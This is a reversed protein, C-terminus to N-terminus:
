YHHQVTGRHPIVVGKPTGTSGSTYLVYAPHESAIARTPNESKGAAKESTITISPSFEVIQGPETEDTILLRATSNELMYKCRAEPYTSDIPLYVAGCKAIALMAVIADKRLQLRFGVIDGASIGRERLRKALANATNNLEQYTLTTTTSVLAPSNSFKAAVVEFHTAIDHNNNYDASPNQQATSKLSRIQTIPQDSHLMDELLNQYAALWSKITGEDFLDLDFEAVVKNGQSGSEPGPKISLALDFKAEKANLSWREVVLGDLNLEQRERSLDGMEISVQFIPNNGPSRTPQLLEVLKDFPLDSHDIASGLINKTRQLLQSVTPDDTLDFRLVLNRIFFGILNQTEVQDRSALPTGIVVDKTLGLRSLLVAFCATLLVFLTVSQARAFQSLAHILENSLLVETRGSRRSHSSNRSRDAPLSLLEPAGQLTKRWYVESDAYAETNARNHEWYAFDAYSVPLKPLVVDTPNSGTLAEYLLGLEKWLLNISWGDAVIHHTVLLLAYHDPAFRLVRARFVPGTELDIPLAAEKAAWAEAIARREDPHTKKQDVLLFGPTKETGWTDDILAQPESASKESKTVFRTRLSTQRDVVQALAQQLVSCILPGRISHLQAIHYASSGPRLHHQIWLRQQAMSLLTNEEQRSQISSHNKESNSIALKERLKERLHEPLANIRKELDASLRADSISEKSSRLQHQDKPDPV